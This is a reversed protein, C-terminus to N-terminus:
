SCDLLGTLNGEPRALNKVLGTGVPDGVAVMVLPIRNTKEKVALAAPTGATVIVDVKAAIFDNV